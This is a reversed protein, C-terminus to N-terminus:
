TLERDIADRIAIENDGKSGIVCRKRNVGSVRQVFIKDGTLSAVQLLLGHEIVKGKEDVLALYPNDCYRVLRLRIKEESKEEGFIEIEM